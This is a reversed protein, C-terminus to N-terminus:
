VSDVHTGAEEAKAEAQALRWLAAMSWGERVLMPVGAICSGAFTILWIIIAAAAAPEKEVGFIVTFALFTAFQSGGGVAPLQVASGAMSFALLLMADLLDLEALRGGFARSIWVYILAVLLWHLASYGIAEALEGPTRIAQLGESFGRFLGAARARGGPHSHWGELRRELAGAGHLRFYVLFAIAAVVGGMIVAGAGRAAAFLAGREGSEMAPTSFVLLSIGALVAVSSMDFVRELVYIGFQSSVSLKEKRATLLPRIPEGARGLLFIAAFGMLTSAYVGSFRAGGVNRCFGVWRQARLAYSVYIALLSLLLLSYRAGAVTEGLRRWDFGEREITEGSRYLLLGVLVIALVILLANRLAGRM